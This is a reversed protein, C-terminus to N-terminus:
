ETVKYVIAGEKTPSDVKVAVEEGAKAAKVPKHDIQMSAVKMAFDDEGKAVKIMDGEALKGSLRVVAVMAKDYYHIVKGTEKEPM